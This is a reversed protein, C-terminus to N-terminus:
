AQKAQESSSEADYRQVARRIFEEGDFGLADGGFDSLIQDSDFRKILTKLMPHDKWGNGIFTFKKRTRSDVWMGIAKFICWFLTDSHAFYCNQLLEPYHDSLMTVAAKLVKLGPSIEGFTDICWKVAEPDATAPDKSTVLKAADGGLNEDKTRSSRLKPMDGGQPGYSGVFGKEIGTIDLIYNGGSIPHKIKAAVRECVFLAFRLHAWPHMTEECCLRLRGIILPSGDKAVLGSDVFYSECGPNEEQTCIRRGAGDEYFELINLRKRFRLTDEMRQAAKEVNFNEAILYRKLLAEKDEEQEPSMIPDRELDPYEVRSRIEFWRKALEHVKRAKKAFNVGNFNPVLLESGESAAGGEEAALSAMKNM